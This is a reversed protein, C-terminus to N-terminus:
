GKIRTEVNSRCTLHIMARSEGCARDETLLEEPNRLQDQRDDSRQPSVIAVPNEDLIQRKMEWRGNGCALLRERWRGQM